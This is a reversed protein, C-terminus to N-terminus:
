DVGLDEVFRADESFDPKVGLQEVIIERVRAEVQERTWAPNISDALDSKHTMVWRALGGVTRLPYPFETRQSKTLKIGLGATMLASFIASLVCMTPQFGRASYGAVLGALLSICLLTVNAWRPLVLEPPNRIELEAIIKPLLVRRQSTPILTSLDTAPSIDSRKCGGHRILSKRLLNFGRQTLCVTAATTTVKGLVYDTLLRPTLLRAADADDIRIDFADEVAMVLEVGDLGM